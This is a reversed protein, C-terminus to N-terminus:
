GILKLLVTLMSNYLCVIDKKLDRMVRRIDGNGELCQRIKNDTVEIFGEFDEATDFVYSTSAAAMETNITTTLHPPYQTRVDANTTSIPTLIKTQNRLLM